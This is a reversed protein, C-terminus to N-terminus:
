LCITIDVYNGGDDDQWELHTDDACGQSDHTTTRCEQTTAGGFIASGKLDFKKDLLKKSIM